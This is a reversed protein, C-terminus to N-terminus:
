GGQNDECSLLRHHSYSDGEVNRVHLTRGSLWGDGSTVVVEDDPEVNTVTHPVYVDYMRLEHQLGGATADSAMKPRALCDGSYTTTYTTVYAGTSTNLTQGSIRRIVCTDVMREAWLDRFFPALSSPISV